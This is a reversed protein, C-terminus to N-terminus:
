SARFAPQESRELLSFLVPMIEKTTVRGNPGKEALLLQQAGPLGVPIAMKGGPVFEHRPVKALAGLVRGDLATRDIQTAGGDTIVKVAAVM